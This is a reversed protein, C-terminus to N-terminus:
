VENRLVNKTRSIAFGLKGTIFSYKNLENLLSIAVYYSITAKM